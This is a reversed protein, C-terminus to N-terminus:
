GHVKTKHKELFVINGGGRETVNPPMHIGDNIFRLFIVFVARNKEVVPDSVGAHPTLSSFLYHLIILIKSECHEDWESVMGGLSGGLTLAVRM